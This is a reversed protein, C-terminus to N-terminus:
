HEGALAKRLRQGVRVDGGDKNFTLEQKQQRVAHPQPASGHVAMVGGGQRLLRQRSDVAKGACGLSCLRKVSV